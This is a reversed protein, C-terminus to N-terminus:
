MGGRPQALRAAAPTNRSKWARVQGDIIVCSIGPIDGNEIAEAATSFACGLPADMIVLDGECGTAIRGTNQRLVRAPQSSAMAWAQGASLGGLSALEVVSKIVAMPMVGTGSPTDSAILLRHLQRHTKTLDIIRLASRLNGAQVLQLAFTADRVLMELSDDRLSTTGGNVHGAIDPRLIMLDEATVPASGPISAGGTHSMVVFGYKQAWRIQPEADSPRAYNGFGYKALWVGQESLEIFDSEQLGPQLMLSGGHVKVGGPHFNHFARQATIALAKVGVVDKPAGPLHVESASMVSTVGGHMYSEIWGLANQRPTWDGFVTHVHSDFLGPAVTTGMADVVTDASAIDVDSPEGIAAIHGDRILIARGGRLGGDLEGSLIQGINVVALGSM